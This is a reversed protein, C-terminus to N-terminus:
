ICIKQFGVYTYIYITMSLCVSENYTYIYIYIYIHTHTHSTQKHTIIKMSITQNQLKVTVSEFHKRQIKVNSNWRDCESCLNNM